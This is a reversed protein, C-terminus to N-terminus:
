FGRGQRQETIFLVLMAAFCSNFLFGNLAEVGATFRLHGTPVIDGLGLITYSVLSFYFADM